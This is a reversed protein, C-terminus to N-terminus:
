AKFDKLFNQLQVANEYMWFNNFLVFAEKLKLSTLIEKLRELDKLKYKHKYDIKGREYKGHLRFYAIKKKSFHLPKLAFPDVCSILDFKKCINEFGKESWGRLELAISFNDKKVKSFFKEVNKINEENEKFNAPLQILCVPSNLINCIESNKEWFELTEKTTKLFGVKENLKKLEEEKLGSRRWTPSSIPHTIGQYCKVTFIFDKPAKEKWKEVTKIKPIKYFTSQLEIVSFKQFYKQMPLAWGCCGVFVKM